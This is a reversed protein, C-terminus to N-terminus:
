RSLAVLAICGILMALFAGMGAHDRVALTVRRLATRRRRRPVAAASAMSAAPLSGGSTDRVRM